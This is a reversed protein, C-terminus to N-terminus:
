GHEQAHGAGTAAVAGRAEDARRRYDAAAEARGDAEALRALELLPRWTGLSHDEVAVPSADVGLGAAREFAATAGPRDGGLRRLEGLLYWADAFRDARGLASEVLRRARGVGRRRLWACAAYYDVLAARTDGQDPVGAWRPLLALVDDWDNLAWHWFILQYLHGADGPEDELAREVHRINRRVHDIAIQPRRAPFHGIVLGSPVLEDPALVRGDRCVRPAYRGTFAYGAGPPVIRVQLEETYSVADTVRHLVVSTAPASLGSLLDAPVGREIVEDAHALLRTREPHHALIRSLVAGDDDPDDLEVLPVGLEAARAAVAGAPGVHFVFVDGVQRFSEVSEALSSAHDPVSAAILVALTM